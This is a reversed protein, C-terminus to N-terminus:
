FDGPNASLRLQLGPRWLDQKPSHLQLLRLRPGQGERDPHQQHRHLVAPRRLPIQELIQLVEARFLRGANVTGTLFFNQNLFSLM